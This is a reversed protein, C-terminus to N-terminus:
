QGCDSRLDLGADPRRRHLSGAGHRDDTEATGGAATCGLYVEAERAFRSEAGPQGAHGWELTAVREYPVNADRGPTGIDHGASFHPGAGALVIVKVSDDAAARYFARDLAYTMASNQANRYEPRNMTILAIADRAEYRVVEDDTQM